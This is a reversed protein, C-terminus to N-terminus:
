KSFPYVILPQWTSYVLWSEAEAYFNEEVTTESDECSQQVTFQLFYDIQSCFRQEQTAM